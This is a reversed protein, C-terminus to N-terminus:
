PQDLLPLVDDYILVQGAWIRLISHFVGSGIALLVLKAIGMCALGKMLQWARLVLVAFQGEALGHKISQKGQRVVDDRRICVVDVLGLAHM